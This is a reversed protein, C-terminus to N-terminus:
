ASEHSVGLQNRVLLAALHTAYTPKQFLLTM